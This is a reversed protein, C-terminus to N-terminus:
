GIHIAREHPVGKVVPNLDAFAEPLSFNGLVNIGKVTHERMLKAQGLNTCPDPFLTHSAIM